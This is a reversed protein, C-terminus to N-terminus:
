SFLSESSNSLTMTTRRRALDIDVSWPVAGVKLSLFAAARSSFFLFGSLVPRWARRCPCFDGDDLEDKIDIALRKARGNADARTPDALASKAGDLRTTGCFARLRQAADDDDGIALALAERVNRRAEDITRGFSHAGQVGDVVSIWHALDDPDRYFRVNYKGGARRPVVATM